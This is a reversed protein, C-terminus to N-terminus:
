TSCKNLSDQPLAAGRAYGQEKLMETLAKQDIIAGKRVAVRFILSCRLNSGRFPIVMCSM